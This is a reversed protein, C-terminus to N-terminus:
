LYLHFCSSLSRGLWGSMKMLFLREIPMLSNSKGVLGRGRIFGREGPNLVMAKALTTLFLSSFRERLERGKVM